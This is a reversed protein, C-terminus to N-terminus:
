VSEVEKTDGNEDRFYTYYYSSQLIQTLILYSTHLAGLMTDLIYIIRM